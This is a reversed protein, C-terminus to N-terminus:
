RSQNGASLPRGGRSRPPEHGAGVGTTAFRERYLRPSIGLKKQVVRRMHAEDGFCARAAVTKLPLAFSTV